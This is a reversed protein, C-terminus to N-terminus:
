RLWCSPPSAYNPDLPGMLWIGCDNAVSSARIPTENGFDGIFVTGSGATIPASASGGPLAELAIDITLKATGWSLGDNSNNGNPSVYQVGQTAGPKQAINGAAAVSTVVGVSTVPGTLNIAVGSLLQCTFQKTIANYGVAHTGDGCSGAIFLTDLVNFNSNLSVDWNPSEHAPIQLGLNPTVGQAVVFISFFLLAFSKCNM